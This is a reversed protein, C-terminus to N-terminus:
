HEPTLRLLARRALKLVAEDSPGKGAVMIVISLLRPGERAFLSAASLSTEPNGEVFDRNGSALFVEGLGQVARFPVQSDTDDLFASVSKGELMQADFVTVTVGGGEVAFECNGGQGDETLGPTVRTVPAGLAARVEAKGLLRCPHVAVEAAATGCVAVAVLLLWLSRM